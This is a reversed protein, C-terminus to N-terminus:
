NGEYNGGQPYGGGGKTSLGTLLVFFNDVFEDM